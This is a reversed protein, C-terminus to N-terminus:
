GDSGGFFYLVVLEKTNKHFFHKAHKAVFFVSNPTVPHDVGGISLFGDGSIVYYLEDSEHPEQTDAEGPGLVLVGAALSDLSLFTHFYDQGSRLRKVYRDIKYSSKM